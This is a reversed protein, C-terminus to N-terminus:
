ETIDVKFSLDYNGPITNASVYVMKRAEGKPRGKSDFKARITGEEGPAFPKEPKEPVTCGCGAKVDTIVLPKQGSNRFRYTVEVAQGEKVKGLDTDVSDIWQITTLNASDVKPTAGSHDIAGPAKQDASGCAVLGTLLLLSLIQKM